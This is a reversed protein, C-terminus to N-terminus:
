NDLVDREEESPLAATTHSPYTEDKEWQAGAGHYSPEAFALRPTSDKPSPKVYTPSILVGESGYPLSRTPIDRAGEGLERQLVDSQRRALQELKEM